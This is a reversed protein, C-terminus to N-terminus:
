RGASSGTEITRSPLSRQLGFWPLVSNEFRTMACIRDATLALGVRARQLASNVSDVSSDFMDAVETAHFGLVDHLM